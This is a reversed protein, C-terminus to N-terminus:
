AERRAIAQIAVGVLGVVMLTHDLDNSGTQDDDGYEGEHGGHEVAGPLFGALPAGAWEGAGCLRGGNGGAHAIVRVALPEGSTALPQVAVCDARRRPQPLYM